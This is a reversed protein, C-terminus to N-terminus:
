ERERGERERERARERESGRKREGRERERERERVKERERSRPHSLSSEREGRERRVRWKLERERRERRESGRVVRAGKESLIYMSPHNRLLVYPEINIHPHTPTRTHGVQEGVSLDLGPGARVSESRHVDGDTETPGDAVRGRGTALRCIFHIPGVRVSELRSPVIGLAASGPRHGPM